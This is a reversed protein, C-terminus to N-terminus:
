VAIFFLDPFCQPLASKRSLVYVNSRLIRAEITQVYLRGNVVAQLHYTHGVGRMKVEVASSQSNPINAVIIVCSARMVRCVTYSPTSYTSKYRMWEGRRAFGSIGDAQASISAIFRAPRALYTLGPSLPDTPPRRSRVSRGGAVSNPKDLGLYHFFLSVFPTQLLMPTLLKPMSSSETKSADAL